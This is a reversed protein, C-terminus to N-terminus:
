RNACMIVTLPLPTSRQHMRQLSGSVACCTGATRSRGLDVVPAKDAATQREGIKASVQQARRGSQDLRDRGSVTFRDVDEALM